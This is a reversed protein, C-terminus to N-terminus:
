IANSPLSGPEIRAPRYLRSKGIAGGARFVESYGRTEGERELFAILEPYHSHDYVTPAFFQTTLGPPNRLVCDVTGWGQYVVVLAILITKWIRPIKLVSIVAGGALAFCWYVPVFYRGSPDVGFSTFLFGGTFVIVIGALIWRAM